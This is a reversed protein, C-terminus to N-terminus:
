VEKKKEIFNINIPIENVKKYSSGEKLKIILTYIGQENFGFGKIKYVVRLRQKGKEMTCSQTFTQIIKKKPDAVDVALEFRRDTRINENFWLSIIYFSIPIVKIEKLSVKGEYPVNIEDLTEIMSLSNTEQDIISNNCAVTWINKM